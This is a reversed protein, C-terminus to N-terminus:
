TAASPRPWPVAWLSPTIRLPLTPTPPPSQTRFDARIRELLEPAIDKDAM